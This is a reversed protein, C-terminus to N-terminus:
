FLDGRRAFDVCVWGRGVCRLKDPLCVQQSSVNVTACRSATRQDPLRGCGIACNEVRKPWFRNLQGDVRRAGRGADTKAPRDALLDIAAGAFQEFDIAACRLYQASPNGSAARKAAFMLKREGGRVRNADVLLPM